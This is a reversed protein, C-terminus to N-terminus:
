PLPAREQYADGGEGGFSRMWWGGGGQGSGGIGYLRIGEKVVGFRGKEEEGELRLLPLLDLVM